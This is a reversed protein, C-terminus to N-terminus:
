SMWYILFAWNLQANKYKLCDYTIIKEEILGIEMEYM